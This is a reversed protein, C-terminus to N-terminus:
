LNEERVVAECRFRFYQPNAALRPAVRLGLTLAKLQMPLPISDRLLPQGNPFYM